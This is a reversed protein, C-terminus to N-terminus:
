SEESGGKELPSTPGIQLTARPSEQYLQREGGKEKNTSVKHFGECDTRQVRNRGIPLAFRTGLRVRGFPMVPQFPGAPFRGPDM